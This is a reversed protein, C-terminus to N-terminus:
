SAPGDAQRKDLSFTPFSLKAVSAMRQLIATPTRALQWPKFFTLAPNKPSCSLFPFSLSVRVLLAVWKRIKEEGDLLGSFDSSLRKVEDLLEKMVEHHLWYTHPDHRFWDAM